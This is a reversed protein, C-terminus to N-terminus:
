PANPRMAVVKDTPPSILDGLYRAWADLAHRKEPLYEHRDYIGTVSSDAHKLVRAIHFRSVGLKGLGTGVTRRLDHITWPEGGLIWVDSPALDGFPVLVRAEVESPSLINTVTAFGWTERHRIGIILGADKESVMDFPEHGKASIKIRGKKAHARASPQLMQGSQPTAERAGLRALQVDLRDKAKSYGSIPRDGTTTFVFAPLKEHKALAAKKCTALIELAFASLPVVHTRDPKTLERPLTWIRETEDIHEWRMGAVETRRQGTVLTLKFYHGFPYDLKGLEPWLERLEEDSLARERRKEEGPPEIGAVPNTDLIDRTLGWAFLKRLAALTKNAAIPFGQDMIADLLEIVDRRTIGKLDRGRWKPLVYIEFTRRTNKVYSAARGKAELHRRVFDDVVNEVTDPARSKAARRDAAPDKGAKAELLADRAQDRAEGLKLVPYSGLTLRRKRPNGKVRYTLSFSRSGDPSVRLMLGAILGDPYDTRKGNKARVKAVAAYTLKKSMIHERPTGGPNWFLNM